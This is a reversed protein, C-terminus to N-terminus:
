AYYRFGIKIGKERKTRKNDRAGIRVWRRAWRSPLRTQV